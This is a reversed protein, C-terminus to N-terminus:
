AKIRRLKESDTITIDYSVAGVLISDGTQLRIGKNDAIAQEKKRRIITRTGKGTNKLYVSGGAAFIECHHPAVGQALVSIDNEQQNSGIRIRKAPNLVFKRTSLETKEILQLMPQGRKIDSIDKDNGKSGGKDKSSYDVDYPKYLEKNSDTAAHSNLIINNLNEDRMRDAAAQAIEKKKERYRIFKKLFVAALFLALVAALIFIPIKYKSLLLILGTM